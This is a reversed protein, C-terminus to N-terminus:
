NLRQYKPDQSAGGQGQERGERQDRAPLEPSAERLRPGGGTGQFIQGSVTAETGDASQSGGLRHEWGSRRRPTWDPLERQRGPRGQQLGTM